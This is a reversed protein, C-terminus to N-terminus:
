KKKINLLIDIKSKKIGIFKSEVQINTLKNLIDKTHSKNPDPLKPTPFENFKM